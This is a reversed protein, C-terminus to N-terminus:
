ILIKDIANEQALYSKDCVWCITVNYHLDGIVIYDGDFEVCTGLSKIM